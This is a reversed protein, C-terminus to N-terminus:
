LCPTMVRLIRARGSKSIIVKFHHNSNTACIFFSGAAFAGGQQVAAGNPMFTAGTQWPSNSTIKISASLPSRLILTKAEAGIRWGCHWCNPKTPNISVPQQRIVAVYRAHAIDQRLQQTATDLQNKAILSSVAPAAITTLISVLAMSILCEALSIGTEM